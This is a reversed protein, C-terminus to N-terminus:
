SAKSALESSTPLLRDDMLAGEWRIKVGFPQGVKENSRFATPSGAVNEKKESPM